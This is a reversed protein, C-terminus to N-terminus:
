NTESVGGRFPLLFAGAPAGRRRSMVRRGGVVGVGVEMTWGMWQLRTIIGIRTSTRTEHDLRYTRHSRLRRDSPHQPLSTTGEEGEAADLLAAGAVSHLLAAQDALPGGLLMATGAVEAGAVAASRQM